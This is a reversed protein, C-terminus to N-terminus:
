LNGELCFNHSEGMNTQVIGVTILMNSSSNKNQTHLNMAQLDITGAIRSKFQPFQSKTGNCLLRISLSSINTMQTHTHTHTHTNHQASPDDFSWAMQDLIWFRCLTFVSSFHPFELHIQTASATKKISGPWIQHPVFTKYKHCQPDTQPWRPITVRQM